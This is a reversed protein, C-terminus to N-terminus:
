TWTTSTSNIVQANRFSKLEDVNRFTQRPGVTDHDVIRPTSLALHADSYHLGRGMTDGGFDSIPEHVDFREECGGLGLGNAAVPHVYRILHTSAKAGAYAGSDAGLPAITEERRSAGAPSSLDAYGRDFLTEDRKFDREFSFGERLPTGSPGGVARVAPQYTAATKKYLSEIGERSRSPDDGGDPSDSIRDYMSVLNKYAVYLREFKDQSGGPKDPHAAVAAAKYASKIDALTLQSARSPDLGLVEFACPGM